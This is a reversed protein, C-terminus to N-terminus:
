VDDNNGARTRAFESSNGPFHVDDDLSALVGIDELVRQSHAFSTVYPCCGCELFGRRTIIGVPNTARM